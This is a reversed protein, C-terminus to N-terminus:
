FGEHVFLLVEPPFRPFAAIFLDTDGDRDVDALAPRAAQLPTAFLPGRVFGDAALHFATVGFRSTLVLDDRDDADLRAAFLFDAGPAAALLSSTLPLQGSPDLIVAHLEDPAATLVVLDEGGDDDLDAVAVDLVREAFALSGTAALAGDAATFALLAEDTAVVVRTPDSASPFLVRQPPRPLPARTRPGGSGPDLVLVLEDRGVAALALAPEDAGGALAVDLVPGSVTGFTTFPGAAGLAATAGFAGDPYGTIVEEGTGPLVDGSRVITPFQRGVGIFRPAGLEPISADIDLVSPDPFSSGVVWAMPAAPAPPRVLAASAARLDIRHHAVRFCLGGDCVRRPLCAVCDPSDDDCLEALRRQLVGDGCREERCDASCGDESAVNGDDCEEGPLRLGDGCREVRCHNGCGDGFTTNGDDCEEGLAPELVGNGCTVIRCNDCRVEVPTDRGDCQEGLRPQVVDDGCFEFRCQASCGDGAVANGDECEEGPDFLGNGCRAATEQRCRGSCGDGSLVNGDDCEEGPDFRGDGCSDRECRFSCGDGPHLDGDDCEEGPDVVGNPCGDKLCRSSCGDGDVLNGDDCAESDDLRGDGCPQCAPELFCGPDACDVRGDRDNDEDDDCAAGSEGLACGGVAAALSAVVVLTPLVLLTPLAPLRRPM